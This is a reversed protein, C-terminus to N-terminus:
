RAKRFCFIHFGKQLALYKRTYPVFWPSININKLMGRLLKNIYENSISKYKTKLFDIILDKELDHVVTPHHRNKNM